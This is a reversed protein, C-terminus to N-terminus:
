KKKDEKKKQKKPPKRGTFTYLPLMMASAKYSAEEFATRAKVRMKTSTLSMRTRISNLDWILDEQAIEEADTVPQGWQVVASAWTLGSGFSVMCLKDGEKIRGEEVAEILALPISAAATNGYKHLNVFVKEEDIGLRRVALDIIRANAQHPILLDVDDLTMGANELVQLTSAPLVRTAFKFVERGNMQLYQEKRDLMGYDMTGASGIGPAILHHGKAGDSGMDFSMVGTPTKSPSMVIAGAGDGFLVCTNRDEWNIFKSIVEVGVVLINDYAGTAIFQHATVMGYVFGTCGSVVTMAPCDAGLKYQVTSSIAPVLYDPSSSAIIILDLDAPTLGAVELAKNTAEVAMSSATEDESIIRREKIGTMKTIWEDNTDVIKELDFNTLVNEPAYKGWGSIRSYRMEM